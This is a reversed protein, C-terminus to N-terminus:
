YYTVGPQLKGEPVTVQKPAVWGSSWVPSSMNANASVEFAHLQSPSHPSSNTTSISLTPTLSQGTVGNAPAVQSITPQAWYEMYFATSVKKYSFGSGEWGRIQYPVGSRDTKHYDVVVEGVNDGTTWATGTGLSFSSLWTSGCTYCDGTGRYVEGQFTSTTGSGAYAVGLQASGIFKKYGANSAYYSYTRWFVNSDGQRNNGIHAQDIFVAGDSKHSKQYTPGVQITPDVYVPYERDESELWERDVEISYEWSGDESPTLTVSPNVLVDERVGEEGSSDWAVPTPVHMVVAGEDSILELVDYEALMPTLDGVDLRWTWRAASTPAKDLILTEKVGGPQVQYELDIGGRVNNFRLVDDVEGESSDAEARSEDSGDLSFSLEHGDAELTVAEDADARDAFSPSLPHDEATWRKGDKTIETSIEEWDGSETRFNLPETSEQTIFSGADTEYTTSFMDQEVVEGESAREALAAGDSNPEEVKRAHRAAPPTPVETPAIFEGAPMEPAPEEDPVEPEGGLRAVDEETLQGNDPIERTEIPASAPVGTSVGEVVMADAIASADPAIVILAVVLCSAVIGRIRGVM